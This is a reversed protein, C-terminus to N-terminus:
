CACVLVLWGSGCAALWCHEVGDREFDDRMESLSEAAARAGRM